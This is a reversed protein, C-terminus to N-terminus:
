PLHTEEEKEGGFDERHNDAEQINELPTPNQNCEPKCRSASFQLSEPHSLGRHKRVEEEGEVWTEM